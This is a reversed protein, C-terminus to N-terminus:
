VGSGGILSGVRVTRGRTAVLFDFGEDIHAITTKTESLRLGMPRLVEAVEDRLTEADARTGAVLVIFDDAYRVLRYTATGKSRRYRRTSGKGFSAWAEAFHEDLVSM